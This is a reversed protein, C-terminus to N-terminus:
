QGWVLSLVWLQHLFLFSACQFRINAHYDEGQHYWKLMPRYILGESENQSIRHILILSFDAPVLMEETVSVRPPHRPPACHSGPTVTPHWRALFVGWGGWASDCIKTQTCWQETPIKWLILSNHSTKSWFLVVLRIGEGVLGLVWCVHSTSRRWDPLGSGRAKAVDPKYNATSSYPHHLPNLPSHSAKKCGDQKVLNILSTQWCFM